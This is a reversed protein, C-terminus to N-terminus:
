ADHEHDLDRDALDDRGTRLDDYLQITCIFITRQTLISFFTLKFRQVKWFHCFVPNQSIRHHVLRDFKLSLIKMKAM